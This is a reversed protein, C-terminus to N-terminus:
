YKSSVYFHCFINLVWWDTEIRQEKECVPPWLATYVHYAVCINTENKCYVYTCMVCRYISWKSVADCVQLMQFCQVVVLSDKTSTSHFQSVDLMITSGHEKICMNASLVGGSLVNLICSVTDFLDSMKTWILFFFFVYKCESILLFLEEPALAMGSRVIAGTQLVLKWSRLQSKDLDEYRSRGGEEWNKYIMYWQQINNYQQKACGLCDLIFGNM